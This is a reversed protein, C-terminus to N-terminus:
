LFCIKNVDSRYLNTEQFILAELFPHTQRNSGMQVEGFLLYELRERLNPSAFLGGNSELYFDIERELFYDVLQKVHESSVTKHYLMEQGKEIFGGGAGIIGDFGISLI